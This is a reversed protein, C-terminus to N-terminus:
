RAPVKGSLGWMKWIIAYPCLDSDGYRLWPTTTCREDTLDSLGINMRSEKCYTKMKCGVQKGIYLNFIQNIAWMLETRITEPEKISPIPYFSGEDMNNTTLPSGVTNFVRVLQPNTTFRGVKLIKLIFAPDNLRLQTGSNITTTIWEKNKEFYESTFYDTLQKNAINSINNLSELLDLTQGNFSQIINSFYYYVDEPDNPIWSENKIKILSDYFFKGPMGTLLSLDCLAFVNLPNDSFKPYLHNAILDASTYPLDPSPILAPFLAQEGIYAMSEMIAHAGFEYHLSNDYDIIVKDIFENPNNPKTVTSNIVFVSNLKHVKQISASSGILVRNVKLNIEMNFRDGTEPYIPIKFESSPDAIIQQNAFKIYDVITSANLLCFTTSIDQLYHIYEHFYVCSAVTDLNNLDRLSEVSNVHMKFFTPLYVGLSTFLNERM